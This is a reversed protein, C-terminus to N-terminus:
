ATIKAIITDSIIKLVPEASSGLMKRIKDEFLRPNLIVGEKEIQYVLKLTKFILACTEKGLAKRLGAEILGALDQIDHQNYNYRNCLQLDPQSKAYGELSSRIVIHRHATLLRIIRYLPLKELMERSYCCIIQFSGDHDKATQEEYDILKQQNQENEFFAKHPMGIVMIGRFKEQRMSSVVKHWQPLLVNYDLNTESPAFFLDASIIRLAGKDIYDEVEVMGNKSLNRIVHTVNNEVIYLVAYGQSLYFTIKEYFLRRYIATPQQREVASSSSQQLASTVCIFDHTYHM